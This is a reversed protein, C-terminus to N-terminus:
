PQEKTAELQAQEAAQAAAQAQQNALAQKAQVAIGEMPIPSTGSSLM